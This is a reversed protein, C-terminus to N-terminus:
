HALVLISQDPVAVFQVSQEQNPGAGVDTGTVQVVTHTVGEYTLALPQPDALVRVTRTVHGLRVRVTLGARLRGVHRHQLTDYMITEKKRPRGAM